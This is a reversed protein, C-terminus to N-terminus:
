HANCTSHLVIASSLLLRAFTLATILTGVIILARTVRRRRSTISAEASSRHGLGSSIAGQWHRVRPGDMWTLHSNERKRKVNPRSRSLLPPRAEPPYHPTDSPDQPTVLAVVSVAWDSLLVWCLAPHGSAALCCPGSQLIISSARTIVVSSGVKIRRM